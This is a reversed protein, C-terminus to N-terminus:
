KTWSTGGNRPDNVPLEPLGARGHQGDRDDGRDVHQSCAPSPQKLNDSRDELHAADDEEHEQRQEQALAARAVELGIHGTPQEPEINVPIIAAM